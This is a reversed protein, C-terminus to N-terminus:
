WKQLWTTQKAQCFLEDIHKTNRRQRRWTSTLRLYLAFIQHLYYTFSLFLHSLFPHITFFPYSHFIYTSVWLATVLFLTLTQTLTHTHTNTSTCKNQLSSIARAHSTDTETCVKKNYHQFGVSEFHSGNAHFKIRIDALQFNCHQSLHVWTFHSGKSHTIFPSFAIVYTTDIERHNVLLCM